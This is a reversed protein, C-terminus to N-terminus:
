YRLWYMGARIRTYDSLGECPGYAAVAPCRDYIYNYMTERLDDLHKIRMELDVSSVWKNTMLVQHGLDKCLGETSDVKALMDKFLINKARNIEGDSVTVCLKMWQDQINYLFDEIKLSEAIFTVGWLGTDKYCTNFCKFYHCLNEKSASLALRSANNDGGDLTKNWSGLVKSAVDLAIKDKNCDWGVGEVAIAVAACPMDDDRIRLDSGTFRAIPPKPCASIIPAMYGFYKNAYNVVRDSEICGAAAIVLNKTDLNSCLYYYLDSQMFRQINATSGLTPQGLPTGQFATSLLLDRVVYRPNKQLDEIEQLIMLKEKEIEYDDFNPKLLVESFIYMLDEVNEPLCTAYFALEERTTHAKIHIGMSSLDEELVSQPRETTGKLLLHELFHAVGNNYPIEYRSGAGFFLGLTVVPSKKCQSVVRIGNSLNQIATSVHTPSYTKHKPDECSSAFRRIGYCTRNLSRVTKFINLM